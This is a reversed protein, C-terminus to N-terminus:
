AQFSFIAQLLFGLLLMLWGPATGYIAGCGRCSGRRNAIREGLYAGLGMITLCYVFWEIDRPIAWRYARAEPVAVATEMAETWEAAPIPKPLNWAWVGGV